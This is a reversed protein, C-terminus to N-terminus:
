LGPIGLDKMPKYTGALIKRIAEYRLDLKDGHTRELEQAMAHHSVRPLNQAAALIAKIRNRLKADAEVGRKRKSRSIKEESPAKPALNEAPEQHGHQEGERADYQPVDIEANPQPDPEDHPSLTQAPADEQGKALPPESALSEVPEHTARRSDSVAGNIWRALDERCVVVDSFIHIPDGYYLICFKNEQWVVRVRDWTHGALDQLYEDTFYSRCRGRTRIKKEHFAEVLAPEAKHREVGFAQEVRGPCESLSIWDPEPLKAM